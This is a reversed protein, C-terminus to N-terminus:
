NQLELVPLTKDDYSCNGWFQAHNSNDAPIWDLVGCTIFNATQKCIFRCVSELAEESGKADNIDLGANKFHEKSVLFIKNSFRGYQSSAVAKMLIIELFTEGSDPMVKGEEDRQTAKMQLLNFGRNAGDSFLELVKAALKKAAAAAKLEIANQLDNIQSLEAHIASLGM